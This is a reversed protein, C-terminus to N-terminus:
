HQPNGKPPKPPYLECFGEILGGLIRNDTGLIRHRFPTRRWPQRPLQILINEIGVQRYNRQAEFLRGNRMHSITYSGVPPKAGTDPLELRAVQEGLEALRGDLWTRGGRHVHFTRGGIRIEERFGKPTLILRSQVGQLGGVSAPKEKRFFRGFMIAQSVPDM